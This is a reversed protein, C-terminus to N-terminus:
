SELVSLFPALAEARNFLDEAGPKRAYAQLFLVHARVNGLTPGALIEDAWRVIDSPRRLGPMAPFPAMGLSSRLENAEDLRRRTGAALRAVVVEPDADTILTDM